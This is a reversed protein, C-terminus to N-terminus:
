GGRAVVGRPVPLPPPPASSELFSFLGADLTIGYKVVEALGGSAYNRADLAEALSPDILVLRPPQHFSGIVNKVRGHDM